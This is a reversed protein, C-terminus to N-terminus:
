EGQNELGAEESCRKVDAPDADPGGNQQVTIGGANPNPDAVDYGAERMCKAFTLLQENLQEDTAVGAGQPAPGVKETCTQLAADLAASDANAEVPSGDPNVPIGANEPEIGEDRLCRDFDHQWQEVSSAHDKKLEPQENTACGALSLLAGGGLLLATAFRAARSNLM